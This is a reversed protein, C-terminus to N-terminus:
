HRTAIVAGFHRHQICLTEGTRAHPMDRFAGHISHAPAGRFAVCTAAGTQLSMQEASVGNGKDGRCVTVDQAASRISHAYSEMRFSSNPQLRADPAPKASYTRM